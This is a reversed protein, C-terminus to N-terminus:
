ALAAFSEGIQDGVGRGGRDQALVVSRLGCGAIRDRITLYRNLKSLLKERERM